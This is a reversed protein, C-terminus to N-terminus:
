PSSDAFNLKLATASAAARFPFSISWVTYECTSIVQVVILTTIM